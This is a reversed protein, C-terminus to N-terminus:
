LDVETYEPDTKFPTMGERESNSGRQDPGVGGVSKLPTCTETPIEEKQVHDGKFDGQGAKNNNFPHLYTPVSSSGREPVTMSNPDPPVQDGKFSWVWHGAKGGVRRAHIAKGAETLESKARKLTADSIGRKRGESEIRTQLVEVDDALIELLFDVAMDRKLPGKRSEPEPALLDGAKLDSEGEWSLFPKGETNVAIRYALSPPELAINLKTVALIRRTDDKPDKAVLYAARAAAVIGISGGGRYLANAGGSKNLHRVVLITVGTELALKSLPALVSRINQDSHSDVSGPMSAMLPDIVVLHAEVARIAERIAEIDALHPLRPHPNKEDRVGELLLVRDLDAGMTELRPRITVGPDDEYSLLVVGGPSTREGTPFIKGASIRAAIDLTLFSKGFGPDGDIVNVARRPLYGPWLWEIPKSEVESVKRILVMSAKSEKEIGLWSTLDGIKKDVCHKHLCLFGYGAFGGHNKLWFAAEVDGNTHQDACFCRIIFKGKERGDQRIVMGKEILRRLVPDDTPTTEAKKAGGSPPFATLIQDKSYRPEDGWDRAIRTLFPEGKRWLFGPIRLVRPLDFVSPDGHFKAAISKQVPSFLDLPFGPLVLWYAHFRGPSSEIIFHPEIPWEEPLPAGDLDLFVARIEAINETKRGQGDTAAVTVFVGAGNANLRALEDRHQDFRGHLTRTLASDKPTRDDFTQFTFGGGPALAQLFRSAMDFDIQSSEPRDASAAKKKDM